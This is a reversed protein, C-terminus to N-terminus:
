KARDRQRAGVLRAAVLELRHEPAVMAIRVHDAGAAGYFEGPSVLVGGREALAETLPWSGSAGDPGVTAKAWLYFGGEPMRVPTGAKGLVEAMFELRDHYIRRQVDVHGDDELAVAAATQVPGPMMLGVHKRVESLYEVLEPDGAYFGARLGALNSRKSLSHVALVGDLGGELITRPADAWTFEAYCEDSAVLVDHDRGWQGVSVLDELQGTPNAPSNVWLVLAREVDSPDLAGLDMKGTPGVPVPVARCRALTAGMEYTPYAISPCLVTDRDPRRLRLWGPLGAVFEKTGVCAALATGPLDVDFRRRAWEAAAHRFRASGISAPYGRESGSSSLAAVVLPPPPDCPAGVSLDVMGGEHGSAVRRLPELRDYPYPPPVFGSTASM